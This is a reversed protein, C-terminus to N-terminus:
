VSAISCALSSQFDYSEIVFICWTQLFTHQHSVLCFFANVWPCAPLHAAMTAMLDVEAKRVQSPPDWLNAGAKREEWGPRPGKIIQSNTKKKKKKPWHFYFKQPSEWSVTVLRLCTSLIWSQFFPLFSNLWILMSRRYLILFYINWGLLGCSIEWLKAGADAM